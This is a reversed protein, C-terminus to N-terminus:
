QKGPALDVPFYWDLKAQPTFLKRHSQTLNLYKQM